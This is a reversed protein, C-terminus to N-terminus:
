EKKKRANAEMKGLTVKPHQCGGSDEWLGVKKSTGKAPATRVFPFDLEQKQTCAVM